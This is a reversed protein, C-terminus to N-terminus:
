RNPGGLGTKKNLLLQNQLFDALFRNIVLILPVLVFQGLCIRVLVVCPHVLNFRCLSIEKHFNAHNRACPEVHIQVLSNCLSHVLSACPVCMAQVLLPARVLFVNLSGCVLVRVLSVFNSVLYQVLFDVCLSMEKHMEIHLSNQKAEVCFTKMDRNIPVPITNNTKMIKNNKGVFAELILWM